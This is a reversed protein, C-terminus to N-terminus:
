AHNLVWVELTTPLTSRTVVVSSGEFHRVNDMTRLFEDVPAIPWDAIRETRYHMPIVVRSSPLSKVLAAAQVSDITYHGGVPVLAVDVGALEAAQGPTLATGLDGFHAVRLGELEFLFILNDGRKAGGADDHASPIGMVHVGHVLHAGQSQVVAPRGGVRRAANHDHHDHSVTVVDALLEPFAYPVEKAFPDTVIVGEEAEIRFCAHGIWTIKM